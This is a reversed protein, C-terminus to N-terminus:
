HLLPDVDKQLLVLNGQLDTSVSMSFYTKLVQIAKHNDGSKFVGTVRISALSNDGLVIKKDSYRNLEDLVESLSYDEFILRGHQWAIARKIDVNKASSLGKESYAVQQGEGLVVEYNVPSSLLRKYDKNNTALAKTETTIDINKQAVEVSGEILTVLISEDDKRVIFATGLATTIGNGAHVVFPRNKDRSVNFRAQGRSLVIHRLSDSFNVTVLSQTDLVVSSGDSLYFTRQEGVGTQYVSENFLENWANRFWAGQFLLGSSLFVVLLSAVLAYRAPFFHIPNEIEVSSVLDKQAEHQLRASLKQLRNSKQQLQTIEQQLRVNGQRAQPQHASNLYEREKIVESKDAYSGLLEWMQELSQYEAEHSQDSKMWAEHDVVDQETCADSHMLAFWQTAQEEARTDKGPSVTSQTDDLM